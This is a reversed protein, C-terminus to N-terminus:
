VESQKSGSNTNIHAVSFFFAMFRGFFHLCFLKLGIPFRNSVFLARKFCGSSGSMDNDFCIVANSDALASLTM